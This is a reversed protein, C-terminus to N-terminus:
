LCPPILSLRDTVLAKVGLGSAGVVAPPPPSGRTATCDHGRRRSRVSGRVHNWKAVTVSASSSRVKKPPSGAWSPDAGITGGAGTSGGGLSGGGGLLPQRAAESAHGADAVAASASRLPNGGGLPQLSCHM